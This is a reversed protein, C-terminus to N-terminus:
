DGGLGDIIDNVLRKTVWWRFDLQFNGAAGGWLERHSKSTFRSRGGKLTRERSRVLSRAKKDKEIRPLDKGRLLTNIWRRVFSQTPPPIRGHKTVLAWFAAQDWEHFDQLRVSVMDHWTM